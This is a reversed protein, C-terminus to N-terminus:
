VKVVYIKRRNNTFIYPSNPTGCGTSCFLNKEGCERCVVQSLTEDRKLVVNKKMKGHEVIRIMIDKVRYMTPM